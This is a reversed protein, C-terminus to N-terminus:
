RICACYQLGHGHLNAHGANRGEVCRSSSCRAARPAALATTPRATRKGAAAPRPRPASASAM